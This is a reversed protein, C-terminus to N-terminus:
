HCACGGQQAYSSALDCYGGTNWGYGYYEYMRCYWEYMAAYYQMLPGGTCGDATLTPVGGAAAYSKAQGCYNNPDTGSYYTAQACNYENQAAYYANLNYATTPHLGCGSAPCTGNTCTAGNACGGGLSGCVETACGNWVTGCVKGQAACSTTPQCICHRGDCVSGPACGGGYNGCIESTCGNSVLSGCQQGQAACSTTPQCSTTRKTWVRMLARSGPSAQLFQSNVTDFTATCDPVAPRNPCSGSWLSGPLRQNQVCHAGDPGFVAEPMWDSTISGDFVQIQLPDDVDIPTGNQTNPV